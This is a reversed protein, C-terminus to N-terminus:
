DLVDEPLTFDGGGKRKGPTPQHLEQLATQLELPFESLNAVPANVSQMWNVESLNAVPANVSQMWNVYTGYGPLKKLKENHRKRAANPKDERGPLKIESLREGDRVHRQLVLVDDPLTFEKGRQRKGPTPQHLEQLAIKLELPFESLNAVPMAVAHTLTALMTACAVIFRM